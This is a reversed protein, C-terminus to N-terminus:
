PQKDRSEPHWGNEDLPPTSLAELAVYQRLGPLSRWNAEFYRVDDLSTERAKEGCWRIAAAHVFPALDEDAMAKAAAILVPSHEQTM